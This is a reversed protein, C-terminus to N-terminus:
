FLQMPLFYAGQYQIHGKVGHHEKVARAHMHACSIGRNKHM